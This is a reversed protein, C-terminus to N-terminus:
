SIIKRIKLEDLKLSYKDALKVAVKFPSTKKLKHQKMIELKLYLENPTNTSEELAINKIGNYPFECYMIRNNTIKNFDRVFKRMMKTYRELSMYELIEKEQTIKSEDLYFMVFPYVSSSIYTVLGDTTNDFEISCTTMKQVIYKLMFKGILYETDKDIKSLANFDNLLNIVVHEMKNWCEDLSILHIEKAM